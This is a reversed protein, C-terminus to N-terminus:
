RSPPAPNEPIGVDITTGGNSSESTSMRRWVPLCRLGGTYGEGRTIFHLRHGALAEGDAFDLGQDRRQLLDEHVDQVDARPQARDLDLEFARVHTLAMVLQELAVVARAVKGPVRVSDLEEKKTLVHM